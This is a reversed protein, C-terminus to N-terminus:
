GAVESRKQEEEERRHIAVQIINDIQELDDPDLKEWNRFNRIRQLSRQHGLVAEDGDRWPRLVRYSWVDAGVCRGNRLIWQSGDALTARLKGVKTVTTIAEVVNRERTITVKQGVELKLDMM